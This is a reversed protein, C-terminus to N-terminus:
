TIDREIKKEESTLLAMPGMTEAIATIITSSIREAIGTSTNCFMRGYKKVVCKDPQDSKKPSGTFAVSITLDANTNIAWMIKRYM